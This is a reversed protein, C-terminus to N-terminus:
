DEESIPLHYVGDILWFDGDAATSYQSFSYWSLAQEVGDALPLEDEHLHEYNEKAKFVRHLPFWAAVITLKLGEPKAVHAWEWREYKDSSDRQHQVYLQANRLTARVAQFDEAGGNPYHHEGAFILFM